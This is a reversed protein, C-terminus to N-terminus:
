IEGRVILGLVEENYKLREEIHIIKDAKDEKNAIFHGHYVAGEPALSLLYDTTRLDATSVLTEAWEGDEDEMYPHNHAISFDCNGVSVEYKLINELLKTDISVSSEDGDGDSINILKAKTLSKTTYVILYAKETEHDMLKKLHNSITLYKDFNARIIDVKEKHFDKVELNIKQM